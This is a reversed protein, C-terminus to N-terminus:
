SHIMVETQDHAVVSEKDPNGHRTQQQSRSIKRSRVEKCTKQM